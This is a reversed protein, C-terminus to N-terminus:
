SNARTRVLLTLLGMIFLMLTVPEPVPLSPGASSPRNAIDRVYFTEFYDVEFLGGFSLAFDDNPDSAIFGDLLNDSSINTSGEALLLNDFLTNWYSVAQVYQQVGNEKVLVGNNQLEFIGLGNSSVHNRLLQLEVTSAYRWNLQLDAGYLHNNSWSSSNQHVPSAWAWDLGSWEIFNTGLLDMTLHDQANSFNNADLEAQSLNTILTAQSSFSGLMIVTLLIKVTLKFM